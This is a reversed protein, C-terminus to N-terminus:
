IWRKVRFVLLLVAGLTAMGGLAALYGYRWKLEPMYEFNMGFIGAILTLPLFIASIITLVRVIENTRHAVASFHLQVMAEVHAQQEVTFRRVRRIHELLDALRVSLHDDVDVTTQEQWATLTDEQEECLGELKRLRSRHGLVTMWDDFPNNPDILEERWRELMDSLPERLALFRDVMATLIIHCLGIPRSPVRVSGRLLKEKVGAISRSDGPRVTVLLRDILFFCTPRTAFLEADSEPALSRFIIMEYDATRDLYCPHAPNQTDRLHYEHIAIGSLRQVREVWDAEEGHIIDLWILGQDPLTEISEVCQPRRDDELRIIEM